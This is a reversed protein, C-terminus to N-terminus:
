LDKLREDKPHLIFHWDIQDYEYPLEYRKLFEIAWDYGEKTYINKIIPVNAKKALQYATNTGGSVHTGNANPKAYFVLLGIPDNLTDGLVQFVNRIHLEKQYQNQLGNWSGRAELAMATAITFTEQFDNAIYFFENAECIKRNKWSEVLYIRAGVEAYRKSQKAGFWGARDSGYADGSSVMYGLDTLTRGLRILLELEDFPVERSGVIGAIKTM